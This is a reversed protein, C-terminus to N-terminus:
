PLELPPQWVLTDVQKDIGQGAVVYHARLTVQYLNPTSPVAQVEMWLGLNRAAPTGASFDFNQFYAPALPIAGGRVAELTGEIARFAQREAELRRIMRPQALVLAVGMLLAVMLLALAILTELLTFGGDGARPM